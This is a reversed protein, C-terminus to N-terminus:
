GRFERPLTQAGRQPSLVPSGGTPSYAVYTTGDVPGSSEHRLPSSGGSVPASVKRVGGTSSGSRSRNPSSLNSRVSPTLDFDFGQTQIPALRPSPMGESIPTIPSPAQNPALPYDIDQHPASHYVPHRYAGFGLSAPDIPTTPSPTNGTHRFAPHQSLSPASLSITPSPQDPSYNRQSQDTSTRASGDIQLQQIEDTPSRNIVSPAMKPSSPVQLGPVYERFGGEEKHDNEYYSHEEVDGKVLRWQESVLWCHSNRYTMEIEDDNGLGLNATSSMASILGNPGPLWMGTMRTQRRNSGKEWPPSGKVNECLFYEVGEGYTLGQADIVGMVLTQLVCYMFVWAGRRAGALEEITKNTGFEREMEIFAKVLSNETHEQLSDQNYSNTLVTQIEEARIKKDSRSFISSKKKKAATPDRYPIRPLDFPMEPQMPVSCKDFEALIKRLSVRHKEAVAEASSGTDSGGQAEFHIREGRMWERDVSLDYVRCLDNYLRQLAVRNLGGTETYGGGKGTRGAKPPWSGFVFKAHNTVTTKMRDYGQRWTKFDPYRGEGVWVSPFDFDPMRERINALRISHLYHSARELRNKTSQSVMGFGAHDFIEEWRGVAHVFGEHYLRHCHWKEGLILSEVIANDDNRVDDLRLDNIYHQFHLEAITVKSQAHLDGPNQEAEGLGLQLYIKSFIDFPLDKTQSAVLYQLSLFAFLNRADIFRQLSDAADAKTHKPKKHKGKTTTSASPSSPRSEEDAVPYYIKYNVGAESEDMILAAQPRPNMGLSVTYPSRGGEQEGSKRGSYLSGAQNPFHSHETQGDVAKGGVPEEDVASASRSRLSGTSDSMNLRLESPATQSGRREMPPESDVIFPALCNFMAQSSHIRFVPNAFKTNKSDKATFYVLTDGDDMWLEKAPEGRLLAGAEYQEVDTDLSGAALKWTIQGVQRKGFRGDRTKRLKPPEGVPLASLGSSTGPRSGWGSSTGPRIMPSPPLPPLGGGTSTPTLLSESYGGVESPALTHRSGVSSMNYSAPTRPRTDVTLFGNSPQGEPILPPTPPANHQQKQALKTESGNFFNTIRKM